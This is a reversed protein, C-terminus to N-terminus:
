WRRLETKAFQWEPLQITNGGDMAYWPGWQPDSPNCLVHAEQAPMFGQVLLYVKKGTRPHVAMDAVLVAHGPSGGHVLVDGIQMTAFPVTHLQRALSLTGAYTFVTDLYARFTAHSGDPRASRVWSVQRGVRIRYGAKWKRWACPFGNTFQYTIDADRRSAYLYEAHLRIVTDACQQLDRRGVDLNVIAAHGDQYAKQRGTYLHVPPNGPRLPLGRLWAAFSGPAVAVRTYGASPAFRVGLSQRADYAALWPYTPAAYAAACLWLVTLLLYRM